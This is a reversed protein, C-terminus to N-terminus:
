LIVRKFFIIINSDENKSIGAPVYIFFIHIYIYTYTYIMRRKFISKRSVKNCQIIKMYAILINNFKVIKIFYILFVKIHILM